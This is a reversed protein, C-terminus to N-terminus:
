GEATHAHGAFIDLIVATRDVVPVGLAQELNREQRATLEDDCAVLNADARALQEKVEELKGPGLYSNPHPRERRQVLEGVVAVGATRLLEALEGLDDGDPTTAVCLARQRARQGAATGDGTRAPGATAAKRGNRSKEM